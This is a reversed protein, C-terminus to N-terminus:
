IIEIGLKKRNKKVRAVGKQISNTGPLSRTRSKHEAGSSDVWVLMGIGDGTREGLLPGPFSKNKKRGGPTIPELTGGYEMESAFPLRNWFSVTTQSSSNSVGSGASYEADWAGDSKPAAENLRSSAAFDLSRAKVDMLAFAEVVEGTAAIWTAQMRGPVEMPTAELIGDMFFASVRAATEIRLETLWKDVARDFGSM